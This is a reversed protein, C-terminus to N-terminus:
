FKANWFCFIRTQVAALGGSCFDNDTYDFSSIRGGSDMELKHRKKSELKTQVNRMGFWYSYGSFRDMSPWLKNVSCRGLKNKDM